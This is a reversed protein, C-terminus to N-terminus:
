KLLVDNMADALRRRREALFDEFRDLGWLNREMPVFQAELRRGDNAAIDELYVKPPKAQIKRNAKASLFAINAMEDRMYRDVNRANLLKKPFIHHYEINQDDSFSERRLKIGKFWDTADRRVVALYALHFFPSNTGSRELDEPTVRPESRLDKIAQDLLMTIGTADAGLTALDQNLTTEAMGAYRQFANAVLFWRRLSDEEAGTLSERNAFVVVLPVLAFQSPLLESGPIGVNGEVFNLAHRVGSAARTWAGEIEDPSRDWFAKLDRFRSQRTATSVLARM